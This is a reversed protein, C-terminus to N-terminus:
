RRRVGPPTVWRGVVEFIKEIGKLILLILGFTEQMNGKRKELFLVYAELFRKLDPHNSRYRKGDQVIM